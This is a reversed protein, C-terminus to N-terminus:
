PAPHGAGTSPRRPFLGRMSCGPTLAHLDARVGDLDFLHCSADGDHHHRHAQQDDRDQWPQHDDPYSRQSVPNRRPKPGQPPAHERENRQQHHAPGDQIVNQHACPCVLFACGPPDNQDGQSAAMRPFKTMGIGITPPIRAANSTSNRISHSRRFSALFARVEILPMSTPQPQATTKRTIIPRTMIPKHSM